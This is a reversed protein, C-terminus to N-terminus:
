SPNNVVHGHVIHRNFIWPDYQKRTDNLKSHKLHWDLAEQDRWEEFLFVRGDMAASAAIIKFQVCGPEQQSAEAHTKMVSLFADLHEPKVSFEVILAISM